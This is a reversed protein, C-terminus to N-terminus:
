NRVFVKAYPYIGKLYKNIRSNQKEKSVSVLSVNPEDIKITPAVTYPEENEERLMFGSKSCVFRVSFFVWVGVM